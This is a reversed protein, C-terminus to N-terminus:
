AHSEPSRTSAAVTDAPGDAPTQLAGASSVHPQVPAEATGEDAPQPEQLHASLYFGQAIIFVITAGTTGFLKFNVWTDTSFQGAVWLNVVGMLAFFACWLLTLRKWVADPLQMQHGMLQKLPSKGLLAAGGLAIAFSWYLLTPKWKIFSEDRLLLTMGGFVVIIVLGVWQMTDVPRKKALLWGIQLVSAAIAVATAIYIDALKFAAFFLIVPLLDFLWKNKM